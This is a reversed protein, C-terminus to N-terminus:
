FLRFVSLQWQSIRSTEDTVKSVKLADFVTEFLIQPSLIYSYTTNGVYRLKREVVVSKAVASCWGNMASGNGLDWVTDGSIQLLCSSTPVPLSVTQVSSCFSRATNTVNYQQVTRSADCCCYSYSHVECLAKKHTQSQTLWVSNAM